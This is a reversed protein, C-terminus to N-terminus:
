NDKGYNGKMHKECPSQEDRTVHQGDQTLMKHRCYLSILCSLNRYNEFNIQIRSHKHSPSCNGSSWNFHAPIVEQSSCALRLQKRPKGLVLCDHPWGRCMGGLNVHLVLVSFLLHPFSQRCPAKNIVIMNSCWWVHLHIYKYWTDQIM